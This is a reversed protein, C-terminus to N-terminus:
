PQKPSALLARVIRPSAHGDGYPNIARAMQAYATEDDLLTSAEQIIRQSHESNGLRWLALGLNLRCYGALRKAGAQIALALAEQLAKEGEDFLGLSLYYYGLNSLGM